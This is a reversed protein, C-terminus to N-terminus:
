VHDEGSNEPHAVGRGAALNQSYPVGAVLEPAPAENAAIKPLAGDDAEFPAHPADVGIYSTDIITM